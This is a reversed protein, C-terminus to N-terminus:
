MGWIFYMNLLMLLVAPVDSGAALRCRTIHGSSSSSCCSGDAECDGVASPEAAAAAGNLKRSKLLKHYQHFGVLMKQM